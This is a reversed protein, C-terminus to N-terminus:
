FRIRFTVGVTRPDGSQGVPDSGPFEFAVARYDTDFLNRAWFVLDCRDSELGLSLNVLHYDPEALTNADDWFFDGTGTIEPRFFLSWGRTVPHRYNLALHYTYDPSLLLNNGSYDTGANVYDKFEARTYGLGADLTLGPALVATSELEIGMSRSKGANRIITDASPLLQVVQQDQLTIFFTAANFSLRNDFWASKLGIEYNWSFESDFTLDAPDMYATNFGGSRYGRSIGAYTMMTDTWQYDAQLKPLVADSTESADIMSTAFSAGSSSMDLHHSLCTKERDLRLGATLSLHETLAYTAQGFLSAGRTTLNSDTQRSVAEPMYMGPAFDLALFHDKDKTFGYFGALWKIGDKGDPSALRIEQTFQDDDITEDATIMPYPTFDQDNSASDTFHRFASVSTFDFGPGEWAVKLSSGAADREYGGERDYAVHGPSAALDSLSAIPFAGDRLQEANLNLAIDLNTGPTWRLSARGNVSRRTDVDRGLYDNTAYGDRALGGASLGLFLRDEALPTRLFASGHYLNYNGATVEGGARTDNDPKKTIINVVGALSNRGYLTGQPGRLVEIREIDFLDIDFNRADMYGVDDVYFGLAPENNVSGIGRIFAYSTGRIGWNAIYLNPVMRSLSQIDTIGADQIDMDSFAAISAPIDQINQERKEATVVLDDLRTPEQDARCPLCFLMVAGFFALSVATKYINSFPTFTM